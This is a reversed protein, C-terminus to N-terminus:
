MKKLLKYIKNRPLGTRWRLYAILEDKKLINKLREIDIEYIDKVEEVKALVITIEGKEKVSGPDIKDTVGRIVEQNIKSFERIIAIRRPILKERFIELTERIRHPTEFIVVTEDFFNLSEIFEEREKKRSPIYGLFTFPVPDFGSLVLASIVMSPGPIHDVCIGEEIVKKVLFYGPDNILPTGADSVLAIRFGDKLNQIVGAEERKEKGRYFSKLPTKIGYKQLLKGTVRTDECLIYDVKGLVEVARFSIDSLNGLPTSVIYLCGGKEEVM